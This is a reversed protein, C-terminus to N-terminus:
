PSGPVEVGAAECDARVMEGVLDTFSTRPEWGLLERAQSPDSQLYDVEAPRYFRPDIEVYQQWDLDVVGFAADLFDRVSHAEGTGVVLDHPEDIQLMLHMAEVYDRAHGWDRRADLNGLFLKKREGTILQPITHTIKRTVFERGRRPSNSIVAGGVGAAFRGSETAVDFMWGTYHRRTVKRVESAPKILHAGKGGPAGSGINVLWSEGGVLAGPQRYPTVRRGLSRLLWTLGAALVSSTTRFSRYRDTGNGAKLGDGLCYGDLFAQQVPPAANLVRKPVRKSGDSNYIEHRLLRAYPANGHLRVSPTV